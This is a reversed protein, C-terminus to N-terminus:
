RFSCWQRECPVGDGDGDMQANPCNALFFRAEACSTMQSCHTRGDCRFDSAQSDQVLAHAPELFAAPETANIQEPFFRFAFVGVAILLAIGIVRGATRGGPRSSDAHPVRSTSARRSAPRRVQAARKRGHRDLGIEFSLPEGVRPACGDRPFASVHVFVDDGRDPRIFGFGREDNWKSLKGDFRM